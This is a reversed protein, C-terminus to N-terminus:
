LEFDDSNWEYPIITWLDLDAADNPNPHTKPCLQWSLILVGQVRISVDEMMCRLMLDPGLAEYDEDERDSKEIQILLHGSVDEVCLHSPLPGSALGNPYDGPDSWTETVLELTNKIIKM